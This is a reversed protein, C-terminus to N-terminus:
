RRAFRALDANVQEMHTCQPKHPTGDVDPVHARPRRELVKEAAAAAEGSEALLGTLATAAALKLMNRQNM